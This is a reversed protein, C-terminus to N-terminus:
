VKKWEPKYRRKSPLKHNRRQNNSWYGGYSQLVFSKWTPAMEPHNKVYWLYIKYLDIGAPTGKFEPVIMRTFMISVIESPCNMIPEWRSSSMVTTLDYAINGSSSLGEKYRELTNM